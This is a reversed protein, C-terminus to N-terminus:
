RTKDIIEIYGRMLAGLLRRTYPYVGWQLFYEKFEIMKKFITQQLRLYAKRKNTM